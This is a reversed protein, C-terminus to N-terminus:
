RAHKLPITAGPGGVDIPLRGSWEIASPEPLFNEDLM